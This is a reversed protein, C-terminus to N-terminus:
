GGIAEMPIGKSKGLGDCTCTVWEKSGMLPIRSRKENEEFFKSYSQRGSRFFHPGYKEQHLLAAAM